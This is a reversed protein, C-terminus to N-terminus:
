RDRAAHRLALRGARVDVSGHLTRGARLDDGPVVLLHRGHGRVNARGDVRDRVGHRRVRRRDDLRPSIGTGAVNFFVNGAPGAGWFPVSNSATTEAYVNSHCVLRQPPSPSKPLGAVVCGTPTGNSQCGCQLDIATHPISMISKAFVNSSFHIGGSYRVTINHNGAPVLFTASAGGVTAVSMPRVPGAPQLVGNVVRGPLTAPTIVTQPTVNVTAVTTNDVQFAVTGENVTQDANVLVSVTFPQGPGVTPISVPQSTDSSASGEAGPFSQAPVTGSAVIQYAAADFKISLTTNYAWAPTM